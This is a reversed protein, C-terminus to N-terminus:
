LLDELGADIMMDILKNLDMNKNQLQKTFEQSVATFDDRITSQVDCTVTKNLLLKFLKFDDRCLTSIISPLRILVKECQKTATSLADTLRNYEDDTLGSSYDIINISRPNVVKLGKTQFYMRTLNGEEYTINECSSDYVNLM